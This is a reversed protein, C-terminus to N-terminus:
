INNSKFSLIYIYLFLIVYFLYENDSNYKPYERVNWM